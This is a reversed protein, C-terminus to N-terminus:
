GPFDDDKRAPSKWITEAFSADCVGEPPASGALSDLWALGAFYVDDYRPQPGTYRRRKAMRAAATARLVAMGEKLKKKQRASRSPAPASEPQPAPAIVASFDLQDMPAACRMPPTNYVFKLLQPTSAGFRHVARKVELTVTLPLAEELHAKLGENSLSWRVWEDDERYQSAFSKRVAHVASLAPEIRNFVEPAWPGFKYFQWPAGTCTQGGNHRAFALDALYVYKLLHIPGLQRSSADDEEGAVLLAYQLIQDVKQTDM